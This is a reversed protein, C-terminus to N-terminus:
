RSAHSSFCFFQRRQLHPTQLFCAVVCHTSHRPQAEVDVFCARPRPDQTESSAVLTPMHPETTKRVHWQGVGLFFRPLGAVVDAPANVGDSLALRGDALQTSLLHVLFGELLRGGGVDFGM